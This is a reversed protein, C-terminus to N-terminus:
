NKKRLALVLVLPWVIYFQEEIGLTWHPLFISYHRNDPIRVPPFFRNRVVLLNFSMFLSWNAHGGIYWMLENHFVYTIILYTAISIFLIPFIRKVRRTYFKAFTFTGKKHEKM